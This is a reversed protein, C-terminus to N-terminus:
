AESDPNVDSERIPLGLIERCWMCSVIYGEASVLGAGGCVTHTPKGFHILDAPRPALVRPLTEFEAGM